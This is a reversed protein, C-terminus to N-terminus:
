MTKLHFAVLVDVDPADQVTIAVNGCASLTFRGEFKESTLGAETRLRQRTEM